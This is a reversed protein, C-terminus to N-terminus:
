VETGNLLLRCVADMDAAQYTAQGLRESPTVACFGVATMGAALAAEIGLPSDEVVVTTSPSAGLRAAAHLFLDPAPKGRPVDQASFARGDFRDWLGVLELSLRIRDPSGSSAVCFPIGARDLQDLVSVVGATARLGEQFAAFVGRHYRDEFDSPLRRPSSAELMSRVREISGGMYRAVCEEITTPGWVESLLEALVRNALPESDVLVGDNDFVVLDWRM